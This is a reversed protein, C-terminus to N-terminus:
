RTRQLEQAPIQLSASSSAYLASPNSSLGGGREVVRRKKSPLWGSMLDALLAAAATPEICHCDGASSSSASDYAVTGRLSASLRDSVIQSLM